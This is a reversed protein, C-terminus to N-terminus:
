NLEGGGPIIMHQYKKHKKGRERFHITADCTDPTSDVVTQLISMELHLVLLVLPNIHTM